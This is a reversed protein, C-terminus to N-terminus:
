WPAQGWMGLSIILPSWAARAVGSCWGCWRAGCIVRLRCVAAWFPATPLVTTVLLLCLLPQRSELWLTFDPMCAARLCRRQSCQNCQFINCPPLAPSPPICGGQSSQLADFNRLRFVRLSDAELFCSRLPLLLYQNGVMAAFQEASCFTCSSQILDIDFHTINLVTGSGIVWPNM